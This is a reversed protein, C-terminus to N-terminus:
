EQERVFRTPGVPRDQGAFAAHRDILRGYPILGINVAASKPCGRRSRRGRSTRCAALSFLMSLCHVMPAPSSAPMIADRLVVDPSTTSAWRARISSTLGLSLATVAVRASAARAAAAATSRAAALPAGSPG